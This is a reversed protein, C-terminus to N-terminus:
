KAMNRKKLFPLIVREKWYNVQRSSIDLYRPLIYRESFLEGTAIYDTNM